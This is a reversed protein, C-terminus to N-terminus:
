ISASSSSAANAASATPYSLGVCNLLSYLLINPSGGCLCTLRSFYGMAMAPQQFLVSIGVESLFGRSVTVGAFAPTWHEAKLIMYKSFPGPNGGERSHRFSRCKLGM